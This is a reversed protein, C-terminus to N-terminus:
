FRWHDLIEGQDNVEWVQNGYGGVFWLTGNNFRFLNGGCLLIRKTHPSYTYLRGQRIFYLRGPSSYYHNPNYRYRPKIYAPYIRSYFHRTCSDIVVELKRNYYTSLGDDVAVVWGRPVVGEGRYITEFAKPLLKQGDYTRLQVGDEDEFITVGHKLGLSTDLSVYYPFHKGTFPVLVEGNFNM